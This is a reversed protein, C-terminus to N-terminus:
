RTCGACGYRTAASRPTGSGSVRSPTGTCGGSAPTSTWGVCRPRMPLIPTRTALETLLRRSVAEPQRVNGWSMARLFSGLRSPARVGDFLGGLGAQRLLDVDDISDAGAIM